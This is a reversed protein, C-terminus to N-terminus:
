SMDEPLNIEGAPVPNGRAARIRVVERWPPMSAPDHPGTAHQRRMCRHGDVLYRCRPRELDSM